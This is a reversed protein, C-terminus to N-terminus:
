RAIIQGSEAKQTGCVSAKYKYLSLIEGRRLMSFRGFSLTIIRAGHSTKRQFIRLIVEIAIGRPKREVPTHKFLSLVLAIRQELAQLKEGDRGTVEVLKELNPYRCHHLLNFIAIVFGPGVPEGQAFFSVDQRAKGVLKHVVLVLAPVSQPGSQRLPANAHQPHM